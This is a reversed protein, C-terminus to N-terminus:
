DAIFNVSKPYKVMYKFPTTKEEKSNLQFEWKVKGTETDLKGTNEEDIEVTIDSITAVPIQDLIAIQIPTAKKNRVKIEWGVHERIKSSLFKKKSFDKIRERTVVVNKDMGLSLKLKEATSKSDLITKGIFTGEFYINAEGSLLNLKEWDKLYAMLYVDTEIKPIAIYKYETPIELHDITITKKQNTSKISYAVSIEFNVSTQNEKQNTPIYNKHHKLKKRSNLRREEAKTTIVVVGNSARAGYIAAAGADKLVSMSAIENDNLFKIEDASKPVGDVIYLPEQGSSISGVGRIRVYGSQGAQGNATTVNIGAAKGQLANAINTVSEKNYTPPTSYYNLYYTKLEPAIGSKKPNANSLTIKVNEWDVKTNQKINAKYILNIPEAVNKSRIDYSPFWSVNEVFYSILFKGNTPKDCTVKVLIEGSEEIDKGRIENLEKQFASKEINFATVKKRRKIQELKISTMKEKYFDSTAKLNELSLEENKGGINQNTELFTLQKQLIQIHTNELEIEADFDKIKSELSIIEEDKKLKNLHDNQHNVSLIMGDFDGKVQVSKGDIYPSLQHFKLITEGKPLSITKFRSIQAGDLFVTVEDVKSDIKKETEKQAFTIQICLLLLLFLIKKM